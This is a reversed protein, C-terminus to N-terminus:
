FEIEDQKSKFYEFKYEVRHEKMFIHVSSLEKCSSVKEIVPMMLRTLENKIIRGGICSSLSKKAIERKVEEDFDLKIGHELFHQKYLHLASNDKNLMDMYDDMTLANLRVINTIRGMFEVPVGCHIFDDIELHDYMNFKKETFNYPNSYKKKLYKEVIMFSGTFAFLVDKYTETDEIVRLLEYLSTPIQGDGFELLKDVEDIIIVGKNNLAEMSVRLLDSLEKGQYGKPTVQSCDLIEAKVGMKKAGVQWSYTKGCGSPGVALIVPKLSPDIQEDQVQTLIYLANAIENIYDDQHVLSTKMKKKFECVNFRDVSIERLRRRSEEFVDNTDYEFFVSGLFDEINNKDNTKNEM